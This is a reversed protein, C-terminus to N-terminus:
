RQGKFRPVRDTKTTNASTVISKDVEQQIINAESDDFEYETFTDFVEQPFQNMVSDKICVIITSHKKAKVDFQHRVDKVLYRGSMFKDRDQPNSENVPEYNPHDFSILDGCSMGTFGPIELTLKMAEFAQQYSIRRPTTIESVPGEFNNHTKETTSHFMLVGEPFDSVFKDGGFNLRPAITKIDQKGGEGDHETHHSLEYEDNYNFDLETFTKNFSDHTVMRSCYVGKRYNALTDFQSDISFSNVQNMRQMIDSEGANPIKVSFNAVVPRAQASSLALMNEYSRFHFGNADEYFVMGSTEHDQSHAANKLMDIAKFPRIRPLVFKHNSKTRELFVAKKSELEQRVIHFVANETLGAEARCVRTQENRLFEKSCFNLIYQQNRGTGGSRNKISYIYMPHGTKATFDYGRSCGPTFVKFEIREFGTLPLHSTINQSDNILVNGTLVKKNISEYISIEVVLDTIDMEKRGTLLNAQYGVAIIKGITFQGPFDLQSRDLSKYM